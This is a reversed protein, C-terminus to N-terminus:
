KEKIAMYIRKAIEEMGKDGPHAAVGAHNVKHMAGDDGGVM